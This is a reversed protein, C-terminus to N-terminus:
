RGVGRQEGGHQRAEGTRDAGPRVLADQEHEVAGAPVDARIKDHRLPDPEGGSV